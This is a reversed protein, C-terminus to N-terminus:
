AQSIRSYLAIKDFVINPLYQRLLFFGKDIIQNNLQKLSPLPKKLLIDCRIDNPTNYQLHPRSNLSITLLQVVNTIGPQKPRKTAIVRLRTRTVLAKNKSVKEWSLLM